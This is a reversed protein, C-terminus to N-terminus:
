EFRAKYADIAFQRTCVVIHQPIDPRPIVLGPSKCVPVARRYAHQGLPDTESPKQDWFVLVQEDPNIAFRDIRRGLIVDLATMTAFQERLLMQDEKELAKFPDTGIFNALRDLRGRLEDQEEVVRLEHPRFNTTDPRSM